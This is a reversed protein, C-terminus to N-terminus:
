FTLALGVHGNIQFGELPVPIGNIKGMDGFFTDVGALLNFPGLHFNLAGGFSPGFTGTGFNATVSMAYGPTFTLGGRIDYWPAIEESHYTGLVGVSLGKYFPMKYRAGLAVNFPMLDTRSEAPAETFHIAEKLDDLVDDFEAKITGDEYTIDKGKYSVNGNAKLNTTSERSIFGLDTVSATISLGDIPRYEIGLDLGAGYGGIPSGSFKTNGPDLNGDEDLALKPLGTTQLHIESNLDTEAATLSINSDVSYANVDAVGLLLHIRGGVSWYKNIQRSYGYAIDGVVGASIRIDSIDYTKNGGLKLFEFIEHPLGISALTRINFEFTHMTKERAVGFSLLNISEDFSFAIQDPLGGLFEDASVAKNFGTVLEGNRPFLLSAEGINSNNQLDINGLGLGLFSKKNIQAPNIRYGYVYNDLFYGSRFSQASAGASLLLAASLALLIRRSKM